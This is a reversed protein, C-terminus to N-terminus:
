FLTHKKGIVAKESILGWGPAKQQGRKRHTATM